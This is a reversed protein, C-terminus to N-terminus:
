SGRGPGPFAPMYTFVFIGVDITLARPCEDGPDKRECKTLSVDKTGEEPSVPVAKMMSRPPPVVKVTYSGSGYNNLIEDLDKAPISFYGNNDSWWPGSVRNEGKYLYASAGSLPILQGNSTQEMVRGKLDKHYYFWLIVFNPQDGKVELEWVVQRCAYITINKYGVIRYFGPALKCLLLEGNSELQVPTENKKFWQGKSNRYWLDVSAQGLPKMSMSEADALIAKILLDGKGPVRGIALRFREKGTKEDKLVLAVRVPKGDQWEIDLAIVNDGIKPREPSISFVVTRKPYSCPERPANFLYVLSLTFFFTTRRLSTVYHSNKSSGGSSVTVEVQYEEEDSLYIDTPLPLTGTVFQGTTPDFFVGTITGEITIPEQEQLAKTNQGAIAALLAVPLVVAYWAKKRLMKSASGTAYKTNDDPRVHVGSEDWTVKLDGRVELGDGILAVTGNPHHVIMLQKNVDWLIGLRSKAMDPVAWVPPSVQISFEPLPLNIGMLPKGFTEELQKILHIIEAPPYLWITVNPQPLKEEKFKGVRTRELAEKFEKDVSAEVEVLLEPSVTVDQLAQSLVEELSKGSMIKRQWGDFWESLLLIQALGLTHPRELLSVGRVAKPTAENSSQYGHFNPDADMEPIPQYDNAYGAQMAKWHVFTAIGECLEEWQEFITEAENAGELRRRKERQILFAKAWQKRENEEKAELARALCERESIEAVIAQSTKKRGEVKPMEVKQFWWVHFAEHVIIELRQLADPQRYITYGPPACDELVWWNPFYRLAATWVGNVKEAWGREEHREDGLVREGVYVTMKFPVKPLLGKYRVFGKPPKPHNILVWQGEDGELLFPIGELSFGKWIEKGKAKLLNSVKAIRVFDLWDVKLPLVREFRLPFNPHIIEEKGDGFRVLLRVSLGDQGKLGVWGGAQYPITEETVGEPYHRRWLLRGSGSLLWVSQIPKSSAFKAQLYYGAWLPFLRDPLDPSFPKEPFGFPVEKVSLTGDSTLFYGKLVGEVKVQPQAGLGTMIMAVASTLFLWRRM